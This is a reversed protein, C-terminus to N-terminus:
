KTEGKEAKMKEAFGTWKERIAKVRAQTDEIYREEIEGPIHEIIKHGVADKRWRDDTMTGHAVADIIISFCTMAHALHHIGTDSAYDQGAKFLDVHRKAAELYTSMTVPDERWNFHGYKLAGQLHALSYEYYPIMPVYFDGPKAIGFQTKPNGDPYKVEMLQQAKDLEQKPPIRDEGYFLVFDEHGIAVYVQHKERVPLADFAKLDAETHRAQIRKSSTM